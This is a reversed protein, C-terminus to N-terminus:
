QLACGFQKINVIMCNGIVKACLMTDGKIPVNGFM